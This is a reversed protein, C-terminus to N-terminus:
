LVKVDIYGIYGLPTLSPRSHNLGWKKSSSKYGPSEKTTSNKYQNIQKM